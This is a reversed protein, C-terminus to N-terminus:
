PTAFLAFTALAPTARADDISLRLRRATTRPVALIRRHGITTGRAIERWRGADEVEVRFARVRQGLEIPEQLLVRDFTRPEPLELVLVAGTTGAPAAWATAREGDCVSAADSDPATPASPPAAPRANARAGRALDKAYTADLRERLEKLVRVEHEPIKGRRDAPVNLLLNANRGVSALWLEELAAVGKVTDDESARWYWGKRISVDCEPPLWHTGDEQGPGLPESNPTGPYFEDRKLMSWCTESAIGRENGVWRVDPGADSFIVAHPQHERVVAVFSPWDYVQRKGNPGEGCAGDFWVEFLPGYQTCLETLQARFIANYRESDGYAPHNRDWPSLYLGLALGYERCADALERVVDGKGDKWTSRAVTHETTKSPWLCFGDHHKATLIVGKMGADRFARAWQRCDLETPAFTDPSERGEGWERETFTNMNFHVFAYYAREHWAVQDASPLPGIPTLLSGPPTPFPRGHAADDGRPAACAGALLALLALLLLARM